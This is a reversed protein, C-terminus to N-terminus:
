SQKRISKGILNNYFRGMASKKAKFEIAVSVKDMEKFDELLNARKGQFQIVISQKSEMELFIVKNIRENDSCDKIEKIIGTEIRM